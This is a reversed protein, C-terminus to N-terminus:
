KFQAFYPKTKAMTSETNIYKNIKKFSKNSFLINTDDAFHYILSHSIAENLDNIYILFLLPGLVSRKTVGHSIM